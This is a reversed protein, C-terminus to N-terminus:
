KSKSYMALMACSAVALGIPLLPDIPAGLSSKIVPWGIMALITPTACFSALAPLASVKISKRQIMVYYTIGWFLLTPILTQAFFSFFLTLNM